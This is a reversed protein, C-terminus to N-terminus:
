TLSKGLVEDLRYVYGNRPRWIHTPENVISVNAGSGELFRVAFESFRRQGGGPLLRIREGVSRAVRIEKYKDLFWKRSEKTPMYEDIVQWETDDGFPTLPSLGRRPVGPLIRDIRSPGKERGSYLPRTEPIIHGLLIALARNRREADLQNFNERIKKLDFPFAQGESAKVIAQIGLLEAIGINDFWTIMALNDPAFVTFNDQSNVFKAWFDTEEIMTAYISFPPLPLLLGPVTEPDGASLAQFINRASPLDMRFVDKRGPTPQIDQGLLLLERQQACIASHGGFRWDNKQCQEGCYVEGYCPCVFRAESTNCRTCLLESIAFDAAVSSFIENIFKVLADSDISFADIIRQIKAKAVAQKEDSPALRRPLSARKNYKDIMKEVEKAAVEQPSRNDKPSKKTPDAGAEKLAEAIEIFGDEDDAEFINDIDEMRDAALRLPTKGDNNMEDVLIGEVGLLARVNAVRAPARTKVAVHLVTDGDSQQFNIISPLRNKNTDIFDLLDKPNKNDALRFLRNSLKASNM